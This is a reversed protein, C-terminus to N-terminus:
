KNKNKSPFLKVGNETIEYNIFDLSINTGRMKPIYMFREMKGTYPNEKVMLKLTGYTSYEAIRHTIQHAAEDMVIITTRNQKVLTYTLTELKDKFQKIESGMAFTGLNDVVIVEVDDSVLNVLNQLDEAQFNMVNGNKDMIISNEARMEFMRAISLQGNSIYPELDMGLLRSHVQIKDPTEETAIMMCKKGDKCAQHLLQLAFITKGTGAEGTFLIAEGQPYGGELRKDLNEIGTSLRNM